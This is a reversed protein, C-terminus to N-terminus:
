PAAPRPPSHPGQDAAVGTQAHPMTVAAVGAATLVQVDSIGTRFRALIALSVRTKVDGSPWGQPVRDGGVIEILALDYARTIIGIEEPGLVDSTTRQRQVM